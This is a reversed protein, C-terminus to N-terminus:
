ARTGNGVATELRRLAGELYQEVLEVCIWRCRLREAVEGTVCSGGFPDLFLDGPDTMIRIFYEPLSAPFRAPHAKIGKKRCYRLYGRNSETNPIGILKPPTLAGNDIAFELATPFEFQSPSFESSFPLDSKRM